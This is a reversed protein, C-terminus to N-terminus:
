LYLPRFNVGETIGSPRLLSLHILSASDAPNNQSNSKITLHKV